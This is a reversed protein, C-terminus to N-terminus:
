PATRKRTTTPRVVPATVRARPARPKVPEVEAAHVAPARHWTSLRGAAFLALGAADLPDSLYYGARPARPLVRLEDATLAALIQTQFVDKPARGKWQSPEYAWATVGAALAASLIVQAVAALDMLPASPVPLQPYIVPWEAVLLDVSALPPAAALVAAAMAHRRAPREAHECQPLLAPCRSCPRYVVGAARVWWARTLRGDELLALGLDSGGPDLALIRHPRDLTEAAHENVGGFHPVCRKM